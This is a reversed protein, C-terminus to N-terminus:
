TMVVIVPLATALASIVDLMTFADPRSLTYFRPSASVIKNELTFASNQKYATPACIKIHHRNSNKHDRLTCINCM